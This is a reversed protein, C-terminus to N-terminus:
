DTDLTKHVNKYYKNELDGGKVRSTITLLLVEIEYTHENVVSVGRVNSNKSIRHTLM